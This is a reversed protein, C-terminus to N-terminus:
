LLCVKELRENKRQFCHIESDFLWPWPRVVTVRSSLELFCLSFALISSTTVERFGQMWANLAHSERGLFM